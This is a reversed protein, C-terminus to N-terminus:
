KKKATRKSRAFNSETPADPEGKKRVPRGARKARAQAKRINAYLGLKKKKAAM